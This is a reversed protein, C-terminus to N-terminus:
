LRAEGKRLMELEALSFKEYTEEGPRVWRVEDREGGVVKTGYREVEVGEERLPAKNQKQNATTSGGSVCRVFVPVAYKPLKSRAERLLGGFDFTAAQVGEHLRLAVCGARGDHGPVLVGYVIAEAVGPFRGLVEAVEATSVNESKWRFTDGLRDLFFWRGDRDRRLADGSRYFLDGRRFVDRVFKKGTAEPNGWYGAFAGESEVRVLIEGGVEYGVRRVFGTQKDRKVEGTEADVAVPVLVDRMERRLIAGHVGVAGRLFEGKSWVVLGLVGETSNFFEIVEAVGFREQFRGWVDPRMGNGYMARLKHKRELAHPAAMLLYRAAEGVYVFITAGSDHVDNWFTRVSFKAGVAVSLGSTLAFMCSLGGTGHFLPMSCYWRDGHPGRRQAFSLTTPSGREHWRSHPYPTAKPHGTTGSTYLLCTPTTPQVSNRFENSPVPSPSPTTSITHLLAPSLPISDIHLDSTVTDLTEAYRETCEPDADVLCIRVGSIRLCHVLGEGRLSHNLLAPACGICWLGLWLVLFDASNKAYVGVLDGPQVGKSLLWQGWAAALDHTERWSYTKERSWICLNDGYLSVHSAFTYWPSLRNQKVLENYYKTAASKKRKARVDQSIHFKADLYAAAATTLGAALVAPAAM